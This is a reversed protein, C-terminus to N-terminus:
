EGQVYIEVSTTSCDEAASQTGGLFQWAKCVKNM